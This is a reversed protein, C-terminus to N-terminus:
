WRSATAATAAAGLATAWACAASAAGGSADKRASLRPATALQQVANAALNAVCQSSSTAGTEPNTRVTNGVSDSCSFCTSFRAARTSPVDEGMPAGRFDTVAPNYTGSACAVCYYRLYTGRSPDEFLVGEAFFGPACSDSQRVLRVPVNANYSDSCTTKLPGASPAEDYFDCTVRNAPDGVATGPVHTGTCDNLQVAGGRPAKTCNCESTAGTLPVTRDLYLANSTPCRDCRSFQRVNFNQTIEADFNSPTSRHTGSACAVCYNIFHFYKDTSFGPHVFYVSVGFTGSPCVGKGVIPPNRSGTEALQVVPVNVLGQDLCANSSSSGPVNDKACSAAPATCVSDYKGNRGGFASSFYFNKDFFDCRIPNLSDGVMVNEYFSQAAGRVGSVVAMLLLALGGRLSRPSSM